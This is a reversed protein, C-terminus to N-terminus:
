NKKDHQEDNSEETNSVHEYDLMCKYNQLHKILTHYNQVSTEYRKTLWKIKAPTWRENKGLSETLITKCHDKFGDRLADSLLQQIDDHDRQVEQVDFPTPWKEDDFSFTLSLM